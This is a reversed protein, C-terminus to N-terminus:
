GQPIFREGCPIDLEVIWLDPDQTRRRELWEAFAGPETPDASRSLSWLREGSAQPMREFAREPAGPEALVLLITGADAEGRALVAAFGGEQHVRRILASVEVHAPLRTEDTM